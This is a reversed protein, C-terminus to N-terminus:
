SSGQISECSIWGNVCHNAFTLWHANACVIQFTRFAEPFPKSRIRGVSALAKYLWPLYAWASDSYRPTSLSWCFTSPDLCASVNRVSDFKLRQKFASPWFLLPNTQSILLSLM